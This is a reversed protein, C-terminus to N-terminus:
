IKLTEPFSATFITGTEKSSVFSIDGKLYRNMLLKMSYTGLGSGTVKTTFSRKFIQLKVDDNMVSDNKVNICIQGEILESWLNVVGGRSSAEVANKLMNSVVRKFLSVDTVFEINKSSPLLNIRVNNKVALMKYLTIINELISNTNTNRFKVSLENREAMSLTRYDNIEDIMSECYDHLSYFIDEPIEEPKMDRVCELITYIGGALNMLDHFFINELANKRKESSIDKMSFFIYEYGEYLFPRSFVMLEYANGKNDMIHCEHVSEASNDVTELIANVAGCKQCFETTGCGLSNVTHICSLIEGPRKGLVDEYNEKDLFSLLAKNAFVVQRNRDLVMVIEVTKEIFENILPIKKLREFMKIVASQASREASAHNTEM